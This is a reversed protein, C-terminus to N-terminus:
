STFQCIYSIYVNREIGLIRIKICVFWFGGLSRAYLSHFAPSFDLIYHVGPFAAVFEVGGPTKRKTEIFTVRTVHGSWFFFDPDLSGASPTFLDCM